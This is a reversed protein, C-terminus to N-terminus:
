LDLVRMELVRRWLSGTNRDFLIEQDGPAISWDKRALEHELQGPGWGAYGLFLISRKPGTDKTLSSLIEKSSTLALGHGNCIQKEEGFNESHLLFASQLQVPGGIRIQFEGKVDGSKIGLSDLLEHASLKDVPRNLVLGFAGTIDHRCLFIVTRAFRPDPMKPNAVLLQGQQYKEEAIVSQGSLMGAVLIFLAFLSIRFNIRTSVRAPPM